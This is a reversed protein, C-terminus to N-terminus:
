LSLVTANGQGLASLGLDMPLVESRVTRLTCYSIRNGTDVIACKLM